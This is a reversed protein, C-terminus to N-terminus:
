HSGLSVGEKYPRHRSPRESLDKVPLSGMDEATTCDRGRCSVGTSIALNRRSPKRLIESTVVGFINGVKPSEDIGQKLRRALGKANDIM